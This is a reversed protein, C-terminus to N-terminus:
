LSYNTITMNSDEPDNGEGRGTIKKQKLVDIALLLQTGFKLMIEIFFSIIPWDSYNTEVFFYMKSNEHLLMLLLMNSM